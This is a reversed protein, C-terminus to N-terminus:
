ELRTKPKPDFADRLGEGILVALFMVLFLAASPFAVLWWASRNYQAQQLLEGWSPALPPLGFGLFDLASLAAIAGVLSFPLLTVVPTLANPLIHRFIIRAHSLGQCRAAEVFPLSRLRLFEARLYYSLGIWNFLGYCVLLLLFSRGMVSGVLIMIYLFPLASWIEIIRQLSIDTWGGFYGQVAGALMGLAMAWITLLLGFLLSTRLGHLVRALVDRGAADVGMWHGPVPRHPWTVDTRDLTVRAEGSAWPMNTSASTLGTDRATALLAAAVTRWEPPVSAFPDAGRKLRWTLPRAAEGQVPKLTLRVTGPPAARPEYATLSVILRSAANTRHILTTEVAPAAQNAFRASLATQLADNLLWHNTFVLDATIGNSFFPECGEARTVHNDSSLSLRGTEVVPAVRFTIQRYPEFAAADLVENPGYPIPAFLALNSRNQCFDPSRAFARYDMPAYQGNHLFSDQTYYRLFPFYTHGNFRLLLPRGNCLLEPLLAMVGLAGLLWLATWARRNRRFQRFRMRTIPSLTLFM